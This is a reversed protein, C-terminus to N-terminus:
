FPLESDSIDLTQGGNAFPDPQQENSTTQENGKFELFKVERALVETVYVRKGDSGEYNRTQISGLVGVLQGKKAYNGVAEALKDWSVINIFDTEDRKVRNVALVFNAVAKGNQTYRLQPDATLRGVLTVSNIM